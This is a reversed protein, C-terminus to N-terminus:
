YYVDSLLFSYYLFFSTNIKFKRKKKYLFWIGLRICRHYTYFQPLPVASSMSMNVINRQFNQRFIRMNSISIHEHCM